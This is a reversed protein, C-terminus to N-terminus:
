SKPYSVRSSVVWLNVLRHVDVLTLIGCNIPDLSWDLDSRIPYLGSEFHTKISQDEETLENIPLIQHSFPLSQADREIGSMTALVALPNELLQLDETVIEEENIGNTSSAVHNILSQSPLPPSPISTSTSPKSEQLSQIAHSLEQQLQDM